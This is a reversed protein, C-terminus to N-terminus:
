MPTTSRYHTLRLHVAFNFENKLNSIHVKLFSRFYVYLYIRQLLGPFDMFAEAIDWDASRPCSM